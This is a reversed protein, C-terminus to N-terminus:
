QINVVLEMFLFRLSLEKVLVQIKKSSVKLAFCVDDRCMM